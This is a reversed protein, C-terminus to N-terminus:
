FHLSGSQILAMFEAFEPHKGLFGLATNAKEARLTAESSQETLDYIILEARSRPCAKSCDAVQRSTAHERQPKARYHEEQYDM